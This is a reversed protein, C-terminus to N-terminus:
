TKSLQKAVELLDRYIFTKKILNKQEKLYVSEVLFLREVGAAQGAFYDSIKDGVLISQQLNVNYEKKCQEILGPKPKRCECDKLYKGYGSVPHHPCYYTQQITVGRAKLHTDLTYSLRLFDDESYFGRAIGSQNTVIFLSYGLDQLIRMGKIANPLFNFDAWSGVYGHDVNIVGDRDLFACKM